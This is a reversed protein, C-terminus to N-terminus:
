TKTLSRAIELVICSELLSQAGTNAMDGQETDWRLVAHSSACSEKAYHSFLQSFPPPCHSGGHHGGRGHTHEQASNSFLTNLFGANPFQARRRLLGFDEMGRSDSSFRWYRQLCRVEAQLGRCDLCTCSYLRLVYTDRQFSLHQIQQKSKGM